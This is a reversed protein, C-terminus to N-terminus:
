PPHHTKCTLDVIDVDVKRRQWERCRCNINFDQNWLV